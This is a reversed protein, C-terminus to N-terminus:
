FSNDIQKLIKELQNNSRAIKILSKIASNGSETVTAFTLADFNIMTNERVASYMSILKLENNIIFLYKCLHLHQLLPHVHTKNHKGRRQSPGREGFSLTCCGDSFYKIQPILVPEMYRDSNDLYKGLDLVAQPYMNLYAYYLKREKGIKKIKKGKIIYLLNKHLVRIRKKSIEVSCPNGEGDYVIFLDDCTKIFDFEKLHCFLFIGFLIGIGFATLPIAILGIQEKPSAVVMVYISIAIMISSVVSFLCLIKFYGSQSHRINKNFASQISNNSIDFPTYRRRRVFHKVEKDAKIIEAVNDYDESKQIEFYPCSM